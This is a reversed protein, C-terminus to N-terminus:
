HVAEGGEHVGMASPPTPLEGEIMGLVEIHQDLVAKSAGTMKDKDAQMEAFLSVAEAETKAQILVDVVTTICLGFHFDRKEEEM